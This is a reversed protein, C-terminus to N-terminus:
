ADGFGGKEFLQLLVPNARLLGVSLLVYPGSIPSNGDGIARENLCMEEMKGNGTSKWAGSKWMTESREKSGM